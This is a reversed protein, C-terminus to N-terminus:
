DNKPVPAGVLRLIFLFLNLFDLYLTLAGMTTAKSDFDGEWLEDRIKQVDFATLAMFLLIGAVSIVYTLITSALFINLIMVVLLAILGGFLIGGYGSLDKKTFYGYGAMAGFLVTAGVGAILLSPLSYVAMIASLSLGNILAYGIFLTRLTGASLGSYGFSMVLVFGLPALLIPWKWASKTVLELLAPSNSGFGAVLTTLLLGVFMLSFVKTMGDNLASARSDLTGSYSM